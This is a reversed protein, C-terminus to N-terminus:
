ALGDLCKLCICCYVNYCVEKDTSHTLLETQVDGPQICTVRIGSGSVEQRMAQSLGEVYFKTGSYVALGPFGQSMVSYLLSIGEGHGKLNVFMIVRLKELLICWLRKIVSNNPDM